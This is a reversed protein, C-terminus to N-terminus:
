KSNANQEGVTRIAQKLIINLRKEPIRTKFNEYIAKIMPHEPDQKLEMWGLFYNWIRDELSLRYPVGDPRGFRHAWKFEPLCIAKGGNQRFKEHIYGEEGGFGKFEDNFGLWNKTECSFTGLGMMPIEFPKGAKMSENDTAWQGYMDGGWTEKFHTAFSVNNDYLMPGSIINKCDPNAEYYKMLSEISGIPFLVHCDMSICYKGKANKFIQDRSATTVKETYPIYRVKEKLWGVFSQIQKGHKGSPNNDIIIIETTPERAIKHHLLLSQVSFYVGSYDDYTAMGITLKKEM